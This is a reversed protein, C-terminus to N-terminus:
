SGITAVEVLRELLQCDQSAYTHEPPSDQQSIENARHLLEEIFSDAKIEVPKIKPTFGLTLYDESRSLLDPNSEFDTDPDLYILSLDSVPSFLTRNAIYAYANLQVEFMPFLEDQTATLRATKYDVIHYRSGELQFVADPTGRLTISTEPDTVKFQHYSPTKELKVVEGIYPFWEPLKGEKEYHRHVVKTIYSHISTFIGPMPIQYPIKGECKLKIWFCRPCFDPQVLGSLTGTSITLPM